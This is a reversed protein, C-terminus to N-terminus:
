TRALKMAPAARHRRCCVQSMLLEIYLGRLQKFPGVESDWADLKEIWGMVRNRTRRDGLGQPTSPAAAPHADADAAPCDRPLCAADTLHFNVHALETVRELKTAKPM